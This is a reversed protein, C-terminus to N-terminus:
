NETGDQIEQGKSPADAQQKENSEPEDDGQAYFLAQIAPVLPDKWVLQSKTTGKELAERLDVAWLEEGIGWFLVDDLM